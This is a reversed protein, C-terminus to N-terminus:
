LMNPYRIQITNLIAKAESQLGGRVIVSVTTNVYGDKSFTINHIGESVNLIITPSKAINGSYDLVPQGDLYININTPRTNVIIRGTNTSM